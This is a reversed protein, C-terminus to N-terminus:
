SPHEVRIVGPVTRALLDAITDTDTDTDTDRTTHGHPEAHLEAVGDHVTVQWRPGGPFHERLAAVVDGRLGEDPRALMAMLDRRSVMGVVHSGRLVPVSKIRKAAMLEVLATVDTTETVTCVDVSMVEGVRQPPGADPALVPAAHARPDPQFEGTLLDLESVVGIVRGVEDVVPAATIDHLFLVRAAHRISDTRRLTIVPASMVERVLM